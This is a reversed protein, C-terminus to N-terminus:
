IRLVAIRVEVECKQALADAIRQLGDVMPLEVELQIAGALPRLDRPPLQFPQPLRYQPLSSLLGTHAPHTGGQFEGM